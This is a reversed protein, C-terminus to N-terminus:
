GTTTSFRGPAEPTIAASAVARAAGSPYVSISPEVPVLVIAGASL